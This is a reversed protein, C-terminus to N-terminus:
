KKEGEEAKYPLDFLKCNMDDIYEHAYVKRTDGGFYEIIDPLNENVADFVIGRESCWEVADQLLKGSRCTWLILRAGLKKMGRIYAIIQENPEGIKPYKNECLTGDFDVAIINWVNEKWFSERYLPSRNKDSLLMVTIWRESVFEVIGTMFAAKRKGTYLYHRDVFPDVKVIVVDGTKM